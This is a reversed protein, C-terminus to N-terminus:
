DKIKYIYYKNGDKDLTEDETINEFSDKIINRYLKIKKINDTEGISLYNGKIKTNYLDFIVFSIRKMIGYIDNLNTETEFINKLKDFEDNTIYGKKIYQNIKKDYLEYQEKTTFIVNYTPINNIEFYMLELIYKVNDSEIETFHDFEDNFFISKRNWFSYPIELPNIKIENIFKIWPMLNANKNYLGSEYIDDGFYEKLQDHSYGNRKLKRYEIFKERTWRENYM